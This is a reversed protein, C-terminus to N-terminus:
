KYFVQILAINVVSIMSIIRTEVTGAEEEEELKVEVDSEEKEIGTDADEITLEIINLHNRLETSDTPVVCISHLKLGNSDVDCELKLSPYEQCSLKIKGNGSAIINIRDVIGLNEYMVVPIEQQVSNLSRIVSYNSCLQKGNEGKEGQEGKEGKEGQEGKEGKEGKEGQEGRQLIDPQSVSVPPQSRQTWDSNRHEEFGTNPQTSTRKSKPRPKVVVREYEDDDFRQCRM